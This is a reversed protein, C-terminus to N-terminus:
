WRTFDDVEDYVEVSIREGLKRMGQMEKPDAGEYFKKWSELCDWKAITLIEKKDECGKLMFSGLAGSVNEHIMNTTNSWIKQFEEFNEVEVRWRYVVRIM